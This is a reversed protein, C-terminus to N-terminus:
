HSPHNNNIPDSLTEKKSIWSSKIEQIHDPLLQDITSQNQHWWDKMSQITTSQNLQTKFVELQKSSYEKQDLGSELWQLLKMGTKEDPQFQGYNQFIGTRDKTVQAMHCDSLLDFIVTFEYEVGDRQVPALGLKQVKTRGNDSVVEFATQRKDQRKLDRRIDDFLIENKM